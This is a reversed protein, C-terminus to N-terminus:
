IEYVSAFGPNDWEFYLGHKALIEQLKDSGWYLSFYDLWLESYEEEASIWFFGREPYGESSKVPAGLKELETFAKKAKAKISM